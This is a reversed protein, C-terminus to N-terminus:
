VCGAPVSRMPGGVSVSHRPGHSGAEEEARLFARDCLAVFRFRLCAFRCLCLSVSLPLAPLCMHTHIHTSGRVHHLRDKKQRVENRMTRNMTCIELCLPLPFHAGRSRSIPAYKSTPLVIDMVTLEFINHGMFDAPPLGQRM